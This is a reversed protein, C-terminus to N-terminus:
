EREDINEIVNWITYGEHATTLGQERQIMMSQGYIGDNVALM